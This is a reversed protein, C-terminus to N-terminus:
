RDRKNKERKKRRDQSHIAISALLEQKDMNFDEIGSYYHYIFRLRDRLTLESGFSTDLCAIDAAMENLTPPNKLRISALDAVYFSLSGSIGRKVLVNSAKLDGHIVGRNHLMSVFKAVKIILARNEINDSLLMYMERLTMADPLYETVFISSLLVGFKREELYGFPKPTPLGIDVFLRAKEWSRRAQSPHFINGIIKNLRPEKVFNHVKIHYYNGEYETSIYLRKQKEKLVTFKVGKHTLEKKLTNVNCDKLLEFIKKAGEAKDIHGTYVKNSFLSASNYIM